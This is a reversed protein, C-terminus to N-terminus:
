TCSTRTPFTAFFRVSKILEGCHSKLKDLAETDAAAKNKYDEDLKKQEEKLESLETQLSTIQRQLTYITPNSNSNSNVTSKLSEVQAKLQAIESRDNVMATVQAQLATLAPDPGNHTNINSISRSSTSGKFESSPPPPPLEEPPPPIEEEERKRKIGRIVGDPDRLDEFVKWKSNGLRTIEMDDQVRSNVLDELDNCRSDLEDKINEVVELRSLMNELLAKARSRKGEVGDETIEKEKGKRSTSTSTSPTPPPPVEDLRRELTRMRERIADLESKSLERDRDRQTDREREKPSDKDRDSSRTPQSVLTRKMLEDFTGYLDKMREGLEVEASRLRNQAEALSANPIGSPPLPFSEMRRLHQIALAHTSTSLLTSHM